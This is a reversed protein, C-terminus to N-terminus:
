EDEKFRGEADPTHANRCCVCGTDPSAESHSCRYCGQTAMERKRQKIRDELQGKTLAPAATPSPPDVRPEPQQSSM